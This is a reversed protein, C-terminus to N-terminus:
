TFLCSMQTDLQYYYFIVHSSERQAHAHKPRHPHSGAITTVITSSNTLAVSQEVVVVYLNFVDLM